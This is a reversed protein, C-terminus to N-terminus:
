TSGTPRHLRRGPARHRQAGFHPRSRAKRLPPRTSRPSASCSATVARASKAFRSSVRSTSASPARACSRTNWCGRRSPPLPSARRSRQAAWRWRSASRGPASCSPSCSSSGALGAAVWWVPEREATFYFVIGLGFAVPSGLSYGDRRSRPRPGRAWGRPSRAPSRRCLVCGGRRSGTLAARGRRIVRGRGRGPASGAMRMTGNRWPQGRAPFGLANRLGARASVAAGVVTKSSASHTREGRFTYRWKMVMHQGPLAM